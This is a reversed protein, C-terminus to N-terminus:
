TGERKIQREEERETGSRYTTVSCWNKTGQVM